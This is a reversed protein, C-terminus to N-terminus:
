LDSLSSAEKFANSMMPNDIGAILPARAPNAKALDLQGLRTLHYQPNKGVNIVDDLSTGGPIRQLKDRIGAIRAAQTIPLSRPHAFFGRGICQRRVM